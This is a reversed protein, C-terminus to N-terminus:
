NGRGLAKSIAAASGYQKQYLQMENECFALVVMEIDNNSIPGHHDGMVLNYINESIYYGDLESFTGKEVGELNDGPSFYLDGLGLTHGFEHKAVHKIEDYDKFLGDESVIYIAKKSKVSWKKIGMVSASRKQNIILDINRQANKGGVINAGKQLLTSYGETMAIVLVNDILRSDQSVNIDICLKQGGFVQYEGEWEMIGSIVAKEFANPNSVEEDVFLLNVSLTLRNIGNVYELVADVPYSWGTKNIRIRNGNFDVLPGSTINPFGRGRILKEYQETCKKNLFTRAMLSDNSAAIYLLRIAEDKSDGNEANLIGSYLFFGVWAMAENDGEKYAKQLFAIGDKKLEADKERFGTKWLEIGLDRMLAPTLTEPIVEGSENKAQM